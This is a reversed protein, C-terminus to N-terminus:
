IIGEKSLVSKDMWMYYDSRPKPNSMWSQDVTPLKIADRTTILDTFVYQPKGAKSTWKMKKNTEIYEGLKLPQVVDGGLYENVASFERGRWLIPAKKGSMEKLMSGDNLKVEHIKTELGCGMLVSDLGLYYGKNCHVLFMPDIANMSLESVEKLMGSYYAILPMDFGLINWGYVHYGDESYKIMKEVLRRATEVTMHPDDYFYEVNEFDYDIALAATSPILTALDPNNTGEPIENFIEVDYSLLKTQLM